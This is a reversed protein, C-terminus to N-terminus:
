RVGGRRANILALDQLRSRPDPLVLMLALAFSSLSFLIWLYKEKPQIQFRKRFILFILGPILSMAIRVAAAYEARGFKKLFALSTTKGAM